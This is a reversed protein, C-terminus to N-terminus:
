MHLADDMDECMTYYYCRACQVTSCDGMYGNLSQGEIRARSSPEHPTTHSCYHYQFCDVRKCIVIKDAV